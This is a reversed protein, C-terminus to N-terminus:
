DCGVMRDDNPWKSVWFIFADGTKKYSNIIDGGALDEVSLWNDGILIVIGIDRPEKRTIEQLLKLPISVEVKPNFQSIKEVPKGIPVKGFIDLNLLPWIEKGKELFSQWKTFGPKLDISRAEVLIGRYPNDIKVTIGDDLTISVKNQGFAGPPQLVLLAALLFVWGIMGSLKQNTQM